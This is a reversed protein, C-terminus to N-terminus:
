CGCSVNQPDQQSTGSHAALHRRKLSDYRLLGGESAGHAAGIEPCAGGPTLPPLLSQDSSEFDDAGQQAEECGQAEM